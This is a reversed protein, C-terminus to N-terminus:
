KRPSGTTAKTTNGFRVTKKYLVHEKTSVARVIM